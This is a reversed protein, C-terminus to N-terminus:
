CSPEKIGQALLRAEEYTEVETVLPSMFQKKPREYRIYPLIAHKQQLWQQKLRKKQMRIVQM